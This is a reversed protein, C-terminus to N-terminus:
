PKKEKGCGQCVFWRSSFGTEVFDPSACQCHASATPVDQMAAATAQVDAANYRMLEKAEAYGLNPRDSRFRGGRQGAPNWMRPKASGDELIIYDYRPVVNDAPNYTLFEETKPAEKWGERIAKFQERLAQESLLAPRIFPMTPRLGMAGYTVAAVFKRGEFAELPISDHYIHPIDCACLLSKILVMGCPGLNYQFYLLHGAQPGDAVTCRFNLMAARPTQRLKCRTIELIYQGNPISM